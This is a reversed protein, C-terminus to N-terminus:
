LLKSGGDDPRDPRIARIISATFTKSVDILIVLSCPAFDWFFIM